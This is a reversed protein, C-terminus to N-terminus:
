FMGMNDVGMFMIDVNCTDSIVIMRKSRMGMRNGFMPMGRCYTLVIM